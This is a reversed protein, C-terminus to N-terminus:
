DASLLVTGPFFFQKDLLTTHPSASLAFPSRSLEGGDTGTCRYEEYRDGNRGYSWVYLVRGM